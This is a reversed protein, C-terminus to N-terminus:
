GNARMDSIISHIETLNQVPFGVGFTTWFHKDRLSSITCVGLFLGCGRVNKM